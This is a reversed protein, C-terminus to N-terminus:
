KKCLCYCSLGPLSRGTIKKFTNGVIFDLSLISNIIRTKLKGGNWNDISENANKKIYKEINRLFLLSMFFYGKDMIIFGHNLLVNNFQKLTYRRYHGLLVDHGSFVSQFAPVTFFCYNNDKRLLDLIIGENPVHELVDMCLYLTTAENDYLQNYTNLDSIYDVASDNNNIKLQEIVDPTYATDIAIYEKSLNKALLSHIVFADGGGIDVIRDIPFKIGSNKLQKLLVEIRSTEWPHRLYLNKDDLRSFESIDM